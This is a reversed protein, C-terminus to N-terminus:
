PEPEAPPKPDAPPKPEPEPAQVSSHDHVIGWRGQERTLVLTFVGGAAQPTDTLVWRGLAVAGDPGVPQLEVDHFELHGMADGDVYKRRYAALTQDFGRRVQGGSTFVIEPRRHYGEMFGDIDGRNWAQKQRELVSRIAAEDAATPRDSRCGLLAACLWPLLLAARM